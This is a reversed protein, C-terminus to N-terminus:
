RAELDGMKGMAWQPTTTPWQPPTTPWQPRPLNPPSQSSDMAANANLSRHYTTAKVPQRGKLHIFHHSDSQQQRHSPPHTAIKKTDDSFLRQTNTQM